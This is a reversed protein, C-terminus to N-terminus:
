LKELHLVTTTGVPFDFVLHGHGLDVLLFEECNCDYRVHRLVNKM